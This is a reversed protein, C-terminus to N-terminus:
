FPYMSAAGFDCSAQPGFERVKLRRKLPELDQEKSFCQELSYNSTIIIKKPRITLTGGKTEASFAHHDCWKKLYQALCEAEPSWEDIIVCDQDVYGDWWKNTNKIYAGPNEQRATLSKGSGTKGVFWHFDIIAMSEPCVQYDSRVKKLTSYLRLRIDADIEEIEGKKALEWAREYRKKELDGGTKGGEASSQPRDGEEFVDADKGYTPGLEHHEEWEAKPQAGKKCYLMASWPDSSARVDAGELLKRVANWSRQNKFQILGQLHPTGSEGVEKGYILYKHTLGQLTSISEDTYNNWTFVFSRAKKKMNHTTHNHSLTTAPGNWSQASGHARARACHEGDIQSSM